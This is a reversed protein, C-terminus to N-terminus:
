RLDAWPASTQVKSKKEADSVWGDLTKQTYLANGDADRLALLMEDLQTRDYESGAVYEPKCVATIKSKVSGLSKGARLLRDLEEQAGKARVSELAQELANTVSESDGKLLDDALENIAGETDEDGTKDSTVMGIVKARRAEDAKAKPDIGMVKYVNQVIKQTLEERRETDGSNQAKAAELVDLDYKKLRKKLESYIKDEKGMASLKEVAAQAEVPDGSAYANYLRDYQGTASAPLSDFNGGEKNWNKFTDIWADVANVQKKLNTYPIGQLMAFQGLMDAVAEKTKEAHKELEEETMGSTDEANLRSVRGIYETLDNIASIGTMSITDYSTFSHNVIMEGVSMVESGGTWNGIFSKCFDYLLADRISEKTMDGNEDQLDKWRHLLFKVGVGLMAIVSTQFVQSTAANGFRKWAEKKAAKAQETKSNGYRDYQAIVDEVSATWIQANQQRQTSFMMLFKAMENTTRQMGTRQMGTYNPQTREVVRQFKENVAAWYAKSDTVEAGESFEAPHNKVYNECGAWLAAVTIEDMKTIGGTWLSVATRLAKNDSNRAADHARQLGAKQAGASGLEAHGTGRLRYQLLEEGHEAMRAEIKALEGPLINKGFQVAAPGTSGWGLEATATPLSAAQLLTVNVNANLVAQAAMSRMRSFLGDGVARSDKVGCLDALAKNLYARGVKGWTKEVQTFLTKGDQMSNLIKEANRLPIAMGAYQATNEISTNAQQVLGVLLVPKASNVRHNLWGPNGVSNDYRIGTNQEPNTDQDVNINIYNDTTAKRVGSLLLITENIYGSMLENLKRYDEIWARDFDTLNKDIEDLLNRRAADEDVAIDQARLLKGEADRLNMEGVRVTERDLEALESDGKVWAEMNDLTIGGHLIHHLGQWNQLQLYLEALQNHTIRRTKGAEDVLGIDILDHTFHYLEREHAKGTVNDFIRTGEILIKTKKRQGDNLMKGLNEMYGGHAYGGMREFMREINMTNMRYSNFKRDLKGLWGNKRSVGGAEKLEEKTGEAFEDIAADEQAGVVVNDIKIIHVTQDLIDRLGRLEEASLAAMGGNRYGNLETRLADLYAEMATGDIGGYEEGWKQTERITAEVRAIERERNQNVDALWNDIADALGSQEWELNAREGAEIEAKIGRRLGDVAKEMGAKTDQAPTYRYGKEDRHMWQAVRQAAERNGVAENALQVVPLVKDVLHDPIYKGEKPHDYLKTLEGALKRIERRTYDEDRSERMKELRQANKARELAVKERTRGREAERWVAAQQQMKREETGLKERLKTETEAYHEKAKATADAYPKAMRQRDRARQKAAELNAQAQLALAHKRAEENMEKTQQGFRRRLAANSENAVGRCDM